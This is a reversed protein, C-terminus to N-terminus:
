RHQFLMYPREIEQGLISSANVSESTIDIKIDATLNKSDLRVVQPIINFKNLITSNRWWPLEAIFSGNLHFFIKQMIMLKLLFVETRGSRLHNYSLQGHELGNIEKM